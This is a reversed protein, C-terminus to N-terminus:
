KVNFDIEAKIFVEQQEFKNNVVEFSAIGNMKYSGEPFKNEMISKMFNIYDISEGDGYGGSGLYREKLAKNKFLTTNIQPLNM